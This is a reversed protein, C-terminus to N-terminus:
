MHHYQSFDIPGQRPAAHPQNPYYFYQPLSRSSNLTLDSSVLEQQPYHYSYVAHQSSSGPVTFTDIQGQQNVPQPQVQTMTALRETTSSLTEKSLTNAIQLPPPQENTELMKQLANIYNIASRLTELTTLEKLQVTNIPIKERLRELAVNIKNRRDREYKARKAQSGIEKNLEAFNPHSAKM